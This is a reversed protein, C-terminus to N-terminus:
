GSAGAIQAAAARLRAPDACAELLARVDRRLPGEDLRKELLEITLGSRRRERAAAASLLAPALAADGSAVAVLRASRVVARRVPVSSPLAGAALLRCAEAVSEQAFRVVDPANRRSRLKALLRWVDAPAGPRRAAELLPALTVAGAGAPGADAPGLAEALADRAEASRVERVAQGLRSRYTPDEVALVRALMGPGRRGLGALQTALTQREVRDLRGMAWLVESETRDELRAITRQLVGLIPANDPRDVAAHLAPLAGPAWARELGLAAQRRVIQSEDGLREALAPVLARHGIKGLAWCAAARDSASPATVMRRLTGLGAVVEERTSAVRALSAAASARVRPHSDSLLAGLPVSGRDGGLRGLGEAANARVRMDTSTACLILAAEAGASSPLHSILSALVMSDKEGSIAAALAAGAEEGGARGLEAAAQRRHDPDPSALLAELAVVRRRESFARLRSLASARDADAGALLNTELAAVYRADIRLSAALYGAALVLLVTFTVKPVLLVPLAIMAM